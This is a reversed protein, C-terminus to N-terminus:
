TFSREALHLERSEINAQRYLLSLFIPLHEAKRDLFRCSFLLFLHWGLSVTIKAPFHQALDGHFIM